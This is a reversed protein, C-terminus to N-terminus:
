EYIGSSSKVLLMNKIAGMYGVDTNYTLLAEKPNMWKTATKALYSEFEGIFEGTIIDMFTLDVFCVRGIEEKGATKRRVRLQLVLNFHSIALGRNEVM